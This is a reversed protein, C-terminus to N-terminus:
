RPQQIGYADWWARNEIEQAASAVAAEGIDGFSMEVGPLLGALPHGGAVKIEKIVTDDGFREAVTSHLDGIADALGLDVAQRGAYFSGDFLGDGEAEVGAATAISNVNALAAAEDLKDGRSDKVVGKFNVHTDELLRRMTELDRPKEPAFPDLVSKSAGATQVRREMGLKEITKELGFGARIVGISGLISSEDAIIEDGACAIYYGGSAAVDEVFMLLPTDTHKAKLQRLRKYVLSSQVPSGGPSNICVAVAKVGHTDFAKTLAKDAVNLNIIPNRPHSQGSRIVGSLRVAAVVNQPKSLGFRSLAARIM